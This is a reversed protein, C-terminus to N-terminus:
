RIEVYVGDYQSYKTPIRQKHTEDYPDCGDTEVLIYRQKTKRDKTFLVKHPEDVYIPYVGELCNTKSDIVYLTKMKM